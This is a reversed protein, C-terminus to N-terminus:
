PNQLVSQRAQLRAIVADAWADGDAALRKAADHEAGIATEIRDLIRSQRALLGNQTELLTEVARLIKVQRDETPNATKPVPDAALFFSAPLGTATGIWEAEHTKIERLDRAIRDLTGKSMGPQNITAALAATSPIGALDM